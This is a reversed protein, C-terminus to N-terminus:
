HIFADELIVICVYTAFYNMTFNSVNADISHTHIAKDLTEICTSQPTGIIEKPKKGSDELGKDDKQELAKDDKDELVKIDKEELEKVREERTKLSTFLFKQDDKLKRNEDFVASYRRRVQLWM